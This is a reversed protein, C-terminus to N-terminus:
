IFKFLNKNEFKAKVKKFSKSLNAQLFAFTHKKNQKIMSNTIVFNNDWM